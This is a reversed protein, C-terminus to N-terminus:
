MSDIEESIREIDDDTMEELDSLDQSKDDPVKQELSSVGNKIDAMLAYFDNSSMEIHKKIYDELRKITADLKSEQSAHFLARHMDIVVSFTHKDLMYVHQMKDDNRYFLTFEEDMEDIHLRRSKPVEIMVSDDHWVERITEAFEKVQGKPATLISVPLSSKADGDVVLDYLGQLGNTQARSIFMITLGLTDVTIIDNYILAM